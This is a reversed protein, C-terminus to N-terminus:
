EPPLWLQDYQCASMCQASGCIMFDKYPNCPGADRPIFPAIRQAGTCSSAANIGYSARRVPSVIGM